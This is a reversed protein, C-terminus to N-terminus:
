KQGGAAVVEVAGLAAWVDGGPLLLWASRDATPRFAVALRYVGPPVEEPISLEHFDLFADGPEWYTTPLGGDLPRRAVEAWVRGDQGELRVVVELDPLSERLAEAYLTIPLSDGPQLPRQFPELDAGSLLLMESFVAELPIAPTPFGPERYAQNFSICYLELGNFSREGCHLFPNLYFWEYVWNNPDQTRSHYPALYLWARRRGRALDDMHAGFDRFDYDKTYLDRVTHLVLPVRPFCGQYYEVADGIYGPHVVVLDGPHLHEQLYRTAERFQERSPRRSLSWDQVQRWSVALPILAAALALTGLPLSLLARGSRALRAAWRWLAAVGVALLLLYAPLTCLLYREHYFPTVLYLLFFSGIPAVLFALLYAARRKRPGSSLLDLVLSALGAAAAGAFALLWPRRDPGQGPQPPGPHVRLSFQTFTNVLDEVDRQTGFQRRAGSRDFWFWVGVLSALLTALLLGTLLRRHRLTSRGQRAVYLVYVLQGIISLVALLRHFSLALLTVGGFGWWIRRTPREIAEWLLLWAASTLFLALAYTTAEQSYWVGLPSLALFAAALLGVRRGFLRRGLLYVLVVTGVGAIASPLRLAVETPDFLTSWGRMSLIYLPYAQFPRFLAVLLSTWPRSAEVVTSIEDLWLSQFSLSFCRVGVALALVLSLLGWPRPVGVQRGPSSRGLLRRGQSM